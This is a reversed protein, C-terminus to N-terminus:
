SRLRHASFLTLISAMGGVILFRVQFTFLYDYAQNFVDPIGLPVAEMGTSRPVSRAGMLYADGLNNVYFDHWVFSLILLLSAVCFMTLEPWDGFGIRTEDKKAIVLAWLAALFILDLDLLGKSSTIRVDLAAKTLDNYQLTRVATLQPIKRKAILASSLIFVLLLVCLIALLLRLWTWRSPTAPKSATPAEPSAGKATSLHSPKTKARDL